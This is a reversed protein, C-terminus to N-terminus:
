HLYLYWFDNPIVTEDLAVLPQCRKIVSQLQVWGVSFLLASNTFSKILSM